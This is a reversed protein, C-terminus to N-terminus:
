ANLNTQGLILTLVTYLEFPSLQTLNVSQPQLATVLILSATSSAIFALPLGTTDQPSSTWKTRNPYTSWSEQCSLLSCVPIFFIKLLKIIHLVYYQSKTCVGMFRNCFKMSEYTPWMSNTNLNKGQSVQLYTSQRKNPKTYLWCIITIPLFIWNIKNM